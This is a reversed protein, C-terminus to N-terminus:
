HLQSGGAVYLKAQSIIIHLQAAPSRRHNFLVQPSQNASSVSRASINVSCVFNACLTGRTWLDIQMDVDDFSPRLLPLSLDQAPVDQYLIGRISLGTVM